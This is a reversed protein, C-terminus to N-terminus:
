AVKKLAHQVLGRVWKAPDHGKAKLKEEDEKKVYVQVKMGLLM